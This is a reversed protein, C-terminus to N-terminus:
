GSMKLKLKININLKTVNIIHMKRKKKRIPIVDGQGHQYLNSPEERVPVLDSAM